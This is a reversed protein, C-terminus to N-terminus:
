QPDPQGVLRVQADVADADCLITRAEEARENSCEVEILIGGSEFGEAYTQAKEPPLGWEVLAAIIRGAVGGSLTGLWAGAVTTILASGLTGGAIVAGLGPVTIVGVGVLFGALTGIVMGSAVGKGVDKEVVPSEVDEFGSGLNEQGVHDQVVEARAVVSIASQDFDHRNLETIAREADEYREFLGVISKM